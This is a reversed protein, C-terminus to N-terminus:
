ILLFLFLNVSLYICMYIRIYIYIIIILLRTTFTAKLLLEIDINMFNKFNLNLSRAKIVQIIFSFILGHLIYIYIYKNKLLFFKIAKKQM